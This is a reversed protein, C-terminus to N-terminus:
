WRVYVRIKGDLTKDMGEISRVTRWDVSKDESNDDVDDDEEESASDAHFDEDQSSNYDESDQALYGMDDTQAKAPWRTELREWFQSVMMPYM